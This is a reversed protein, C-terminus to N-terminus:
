RVALKRRWVRANREENGDTGIAIRQRQISPADSFWVARRYVPGPRPQRNLARKLPAGFRAGAFRVSGLGGLACMSTETSRWSRISHQLAPVRLAATNRELARPRRRRSCNDSRPAAATSRHEPSAHERAPPM